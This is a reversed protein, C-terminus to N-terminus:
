GRVSVWPPRPDSPFWSPVQVEGDRFDWREGSRHNILENKIVTATQRDIVRHWKYPPEHERANVMVRDVRRGDRGVRSHQISEQFAPHKTSHPADDHFAKTKLAGELRMTATLQRNSTRAVFVGQSQIATVTRHIIRSIRGVALPYSPSCRGGSPGSMARAM